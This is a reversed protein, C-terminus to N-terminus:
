RLTSVEIGDRGSLARLALRGIRGFGNIGIRTTVTLEEYNHTDELSEALAEAHLM